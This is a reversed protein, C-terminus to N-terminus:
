DKNNLVKVINLYFRQLLSSEQTIIETSALMGNKLVIKHIKDKNEFSQFDIKAMFVSDKFAVESIYSIKGRIMGYQEYPYSQMKILTRQGLRIKGMNNQPIQVEGFFNTNGPNVIFLEQGQSVTQQEQVIGAYNLIGSVPALIVYKNIWSDTDSIISNLAQLFKAQQETITNDLELIEKEKTAYNTSNNLLDTETQQLPYKSSLYKNEQDKFENKSIVNNSSLKQYSEYQQEANAFEQQKIKQQVLIHGKLTKISQLDKELSLRKKPYYGGERTSLYQIYQQYFNQYAAQLEGLNDNTPLLNLNLPKAKLFMDRVIKLEKSLQLVEGHTATSEIFALPENERVKKNEPVLLTTLKGPIKAYIAKPANLSNIKLNANIVDPYRIFAALILIAGIVLLILTIGYRLIWSPVSTIIENVEETNNENYRNEEPM